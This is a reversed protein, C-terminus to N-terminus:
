TQKTSTRFSESSFNVIQYGDLMGICNGGGSRSKSVSKGNKSVYEVTGKRLVSTRHQGIASQILVEKQGHLTVAKSVFASM